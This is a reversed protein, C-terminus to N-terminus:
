APCTHNPAGVSAVVSHRDGEVYCTVGGSLRVGRGVQDGFVIMGCIWGAPLFIFVFVGVDAQVRARLCARM